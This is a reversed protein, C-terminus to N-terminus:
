SHDRVLRQGLLRLRRRRMRVPSCYATLLSHHTTLLSYHTTHSYHTLLSYHTTLLSVSPEIGMHSVYTQDGYTFPFFCPSGSGPGNVATNSSDTCWQTTTSVTVASTAGVRDLVCFAALCKLLFPRVM